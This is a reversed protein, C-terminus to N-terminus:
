NCSTDALCVRSLLLVTRCSFKAGRECNAYLHANNTRRCLEIKQFLVCEVIEEEEYKVANTELKTCM